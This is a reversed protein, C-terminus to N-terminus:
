KVRIITAQLEAGADDFFAVKRWTKGNSFFHAENFGGVILTHDDWRHLSKVAREDVKRYSGSKENYEYLGADTGILTEHPSRKYFANIPTNKLPALEHVPEILKTTANLL